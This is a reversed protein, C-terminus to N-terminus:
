LHYGKVSIILLPHKKRLQPILVRAKLIPGALIVLFFSVFLSYTLINREAKITGRYVDIIYGAAQFSFFSIGIPLLVKLYPVEWRLGVVSM